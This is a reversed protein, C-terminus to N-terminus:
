AWGDARQRARWWWAVGGAAVLVLPLIAGPPIGFTDVAIEKATRTVAAVTEVQGGAEQVLALLGVASATAGSRAIPSGSLSSEGLLAQPMPEPRESDDPTLYMAAEAARRRTLGALSVLSGNVRARNWLGFARAASQEDGRNHCKLVTSGRLGGAGINYTLSVLASLQNATPEVTCMNRVVEARESLADCLRQDAQEQTWVTRPTVGDTEGWGVTLIRAPCRYAKLRCGEFSAILLVGDYAIPWSLRPDPKVKVQTM